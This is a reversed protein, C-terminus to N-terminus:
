YAIKILNVAERLDETEIHVYGMTTTIDSHGALQKAYNINVGKKILNTIFTHRLCHFHYKEPLGAQRLYNKFKKSVYNGNLKVGKSNVFIYGEPESLEIVKGIHSLISELLDKLPNSIPIHRIRGTKVKFNPKNRITLIMERFDIDKEQINLIENLRCGTLLAFIILNRFNDEDISEMIIKVEDDSFCLKEKQPISFQKVYHLPNESLYKMRIAYNFLAKITRIEINVSTKSVEKVRVNKYNEFDRTSYLHIERDGLIRLVNMIALRYVIATKPNFNAEAYQFMERQLDTFFRKTQKVKQTRDSKVFELLFREAKKRNKEGTSIKTRKGTSPNTYYLYYVGKYWKSIFM